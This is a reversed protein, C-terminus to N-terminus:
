YVIAEKLSGVFNELAKMMQQRSDLNREIISVAASGVVIGDAWRSAARAQDPTSIGFGILLPEKVVGRVLTIFSQLEEPLSERTGTIGTRSVCYIFPQSLAAIAEMRRISTTPTILFITGLNFSKAIDMNEGWEEPPLDTILVSDVGASSIDQFFRRTGYKFVPNFCTMVLAAIDSRSRIKEIFGPLQRLSFDKNLARRYSQQLIPGDMLPDSYPIGLEIIDAGWEHLHSFVELSTDLDPDGITAFIALAKEGKTKLEQLKEAIKM